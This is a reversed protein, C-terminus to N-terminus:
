RLRPLNLELLPSLSEAYASTLHNTDRYVLLDGVVLPCRLSCLWPTPDLVPVGSRRAAYRMGARWEPHRQTDGVEEDCATIDTGHATLCDLPNRDMLPTDAMLVVRAAAVRLAGFLAGWALPWRRELAPVPGGSMAPYESKSAIVVLDARLARIRNLAWQRWLDCEVYPRKLRPNYVPMAAPSCSSRTLSILRWGHRQAIEAVAPFWQLAHSDGFLVVTRTATPPGYTCAPHRVGSGLSLHCGDTQPLVVDNAADRLAPRLGAPVRRVGDAASILRTLEAQPDAAARLLARTDAAPPGVPVAPPWVIALVAVAATTATLLSGLFLGHAAWRRAPKEVCHYTVFALLLAAAGLAVGTLVELPSGALEARDRGLAAPVIVLLPWHWLYWAYSLRGIVQMSPAGLLYGAGGTPACGAAIVAVAGLVPPLAALGPFPTGDNFGVAAIAIAVLGGWRLARALRRPLRALRAAALALLAGAGLEWIRSPLGFYAWPADRTLEYASYALSVACLVALVVTLTRTGCRFVGRVTLILLPWLLYFQEEVALSWFHQLPSAATDAFYDTAIVALRMNIVQAAGSLADYGYGATRLPPLWLWAGALTAVVVLTSAPLLRAARRAYFRRLSIRGYLRHERVLLTTILFGSIVFFVDVGVYGGALLPLGAHSAVVLLVAVARLGQIDRRYRDAPWAGSVPVTARGRAVTLSSTV